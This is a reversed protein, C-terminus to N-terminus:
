KLLLLFYATNTCISCLKQELRCTKGFYRWKDTTHIQLSGYGQKVLHAFVHM